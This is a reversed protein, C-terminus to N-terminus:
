FRFNESALFLVWHGLVKNDSSALFQFRERCEPTAGRSSVLHFSPSPSRSLKRWHHRGFGVDADIIEDLHSPTSGLATLIYIVSSIVNFVELQVESSFFNVNVTNQFINKCASWEM